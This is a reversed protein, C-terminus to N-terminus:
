PLYTLGREAVLKVLPTPVDTIIGDVGLGLLRAMEAEDNVTWVHVALGARHAADIFAEDVVTLDGQFAPVQLAVHAVPPLPEGTHVARWFLAVAATGASTAIGPAFRTFADTAHDLFSAVIVRDTNGHDMVVRALEQEYAAVAPATQKIDLNLAVQPHDDLVELIEELTAVRFDPDDPARGRYPYADPELDDREDRGPVFWYANDLARVEALTMAAIAGQGNTTRDVTRDHCVVLHGDATAHVDLEIGTAGIALAHRLAFLTSSPAEWAGAQHAYTLM